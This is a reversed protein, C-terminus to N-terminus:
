SVGGVKTSLMGEVGVGTPFLGLKSAGPPGVEGIEWAYWYRATLAPTAGSTGSKLISGKSNPWFATGGVTEVIVLSGNMSM